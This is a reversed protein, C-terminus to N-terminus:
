EKSGCKGSTCCLVVLLALGTDLDESVEQFETFISSSAVCNMLEM